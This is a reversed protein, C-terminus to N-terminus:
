QCLLILQERSLVRGANQALARLLDFQYGSLPREVGDIRVQRSGIDIELRGFRLTLAHQATPVRRRLVARVRALLERPSFPKPIYDDAGIELGVVRDMEDGRGTLMLIPIDFTARCRRCVEFGDVGPLMVDLIVVAADGQAIRALGDEGTSVHEVRYGASTLYDSLMRALREDDEILLLCEAM